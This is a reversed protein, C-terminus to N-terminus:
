LWVPVEKVTFNNVNVLQCWMMSIHCMWSAFDCGTVPTASHKRASIQIPVKAVFARLAWLKFTALTNACLALLDPVGSLKWM